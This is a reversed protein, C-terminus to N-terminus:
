WEVFLLIVLYPLSLPSTVWWKFCNKFDVADFIFYKIMILLMIAYSMLIYEIM